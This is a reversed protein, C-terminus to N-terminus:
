AAVFTMNSRADSVSLCGSLARQAGKSLADSVIFACCASVALRSDAPPAAAVAAALTHAAALAAASPAAPPPPPPPPPRALPILRWRFRRLILGQRLARLLEAEAFRGLAGRRELLHRETCKKVPLSSLALQHSRTVFRISSDYEKCKTPRALAPPPPSFPPLPPLPPAQFSRHSWRSSAKLETVEGQHPAAPHMPPLALSLCRKNRKCTNWARMKEASEPMQIRILEIGETM